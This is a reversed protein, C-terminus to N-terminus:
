KKKAGFGANSGWLYVVLGDATSHITANYLAYSGSATIMNHNHIETNACSRDGYCDIDAADGYSHFTVGYCSNSGWCELSIPGTLNVSTNSCAFVASCDLSSSQFASSGQICGINACSFSGSCRISKYSDWEATIDTTGGSNAKYGRSRLSYTRNIPRSQGVCEYTTNCYETGAYVGSATMLIVTYFSLRQPYEYMIFMLMLVVMLCTINPLSAVYLINADPFRLSRRNQSHSKASSTTSNRCVSLIDRMPNPTTSLPAKTSKFVRVLDSTLRMEKSDNHLSHVTEKTHYNSDLNDSERPANTPRSVHKPPLSAQGPAPIFSIMLMTQNYTRPMHSEGSSYAPLDIAQGIVDTVHCSSRIYLCTFGFLTLWIMLLISIIGVSKLTSCESSRSMKHSIHGTGTSSTEDCRNHKM